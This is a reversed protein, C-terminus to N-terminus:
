TPSQVRKRWDMWTDGVGVGLALACVILPVFATLFILVLGVKRGRGVWSLVGVGRLLYIAGFFLLLNLGIVSGDQFPPLFYITAGVALGWILQDNFRFDRLYGFAPGIPADALRHYLTWALALAAISELALLVPIFGVARAPLEALQAASERTMLDLSPRDKVAQRWEYSSTVSHFWSLTQDTRRDFESEMAYRVNEGGNPKVVMLLCGIGLAIAVTSLARSFFPVNPIVVSVVGFTSVLLLTWGAVLITYTSAYPGFATWAMWSTLGIWLSAFLASGGKWWGLMACVSLSAMLLVMTEAIPIVSKVATPLMPLGLFAILAIIISGWGKPAPRSTAAEVKIGKSLFVSVSSIRDYFQKM